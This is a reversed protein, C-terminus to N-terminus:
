SSLIRDSWSLMVSRTLHPLDGVIAGTIDAIDIDDQMLALLSRVEDIHLRNDETLAALLQLRLTDDLLVVRM